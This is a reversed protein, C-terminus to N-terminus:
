CPAEKPGVDRKLFLYTFLPKDEKKARAVAKKADTEWKIKEWGFDGKKEMELIGELIAEAKKQDWEPRDKDALFGLVKMLIEGGVDEGDAPAMQPTWLMLGVVCASLRFSVRVGFIAKMLKSYASEPAFTVLYKRHVSVVDGGM